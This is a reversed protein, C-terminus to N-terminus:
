VAEMRRKAKEDLFAQMARQPEGTNFAQGFASVSVEIAGSLPLEDWERMLAKQATIVAPGCELIPAVERLVASDLGDEGAVADVLGWQLATAADITAGTLIMRRARAMGILRPMLAAHIVSPIGVKVEPMAFQASPAAVRMDCSMALELGGGLCWGQIRAVVPAPFRRVAECLESLKRIFQEGSRPDLRAMEGIDAGGIFSRDGCSALVLARLTSDQALERIGETLALIVPTSLINAKGANTITLRLVGDAIREVSCHENLMKTEDGKSTKRM